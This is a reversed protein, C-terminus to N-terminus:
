RCWHPALRLATNVMVVRTKSRDAPGLSILWARSIFVRNSLICFFLLLYWNDLGQISKLVPGQGVEPLFDALGWFVHVSLLTQTYLQPRPGHSVSYWVELPAPHQSALVLWVSTGMILGWHFDWLGVGPHTGRALLIEYFNDSMLSQKYLQMSFPHSPAQDQNRRSEAEHEKRNVLKLVSGKRTTLQLVAYLLKESILGETSCINRHARTTLRWVQPQDQLSRVCLVM